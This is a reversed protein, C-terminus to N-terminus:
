IERPRRQRRPGDNRPPAARGRDLNAVEVRPAHHPDIHDPRAVVVVSAAGACALVWAEQFDTFLGGFTWGQAELYAFCAAAHTTSTAAPVVIFAAIAATTM